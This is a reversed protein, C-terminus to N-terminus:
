NIMSTAVRWIADAKVFPANKSSTTGRCLIYPTIVPFCLTPFSVILFVSKGSWKPRHIRRWRQLFFKIGFVLNNIERMFSFPPHRVIKIKFIVLNCKDDYIRIFIHSNEWPLQFIRNTSFFKYYHIVILFDFFKPRNM